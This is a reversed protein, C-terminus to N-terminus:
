VGFKDVIYPFLLANVSFPVEQLIAGTLVTSERNEYMEAVHVKIADKILQPVDGAYGDGYGATFRIRVTDPEGRATSPWREGPLLLVMGKRAKPGQPALVRYLGADLTQEDGNGDTYLIEEVTKLPPKPIEIWREDRPFCELWLEWEQDLFARQTHQEAYETASAIFGEILADEDDIEVRAHAKAEELTVPYGDPPLVLTMM